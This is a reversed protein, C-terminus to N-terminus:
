FAIWGNWNPHEKRFQEHYERLRGLLPSDKGVAIWLIPENSVHIVYWAHDQEEVAVQTRAVGELLTM